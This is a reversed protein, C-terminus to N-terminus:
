LVPLGRRLVSLLGAREHAQDLPMVSKMAGSFAALVQAPQHRDCEQEPMRNRALAIMEPSSDVGTVHLGHDVLFRAVPEGGGCGLDLVRGGGVLEKAFAEIWVRDNWGSRRRAADWETAHRRYLDIVTESLPAIM